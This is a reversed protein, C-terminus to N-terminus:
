YWYGGRTSAVPRGLFYNRATVPDSCLAAWVCRVKEGEDGDGSDGGGVGRGGVGGGYNVIM